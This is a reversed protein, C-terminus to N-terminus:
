EQSAPASEDNPESMQRRERIRNRLRDAFRAQAAPTRDVGTAIDEGSLDRLALAAIDAVRRGTVGPSDFEVPTTTTSAVYGAVAAIRRETSLEGEFSAEDGLARVLALVPDSVDDKLHTAHSMGVATINESLSEAAQARVEPRPHKLLVWALASQASPTAVRGLGSVAAAAARPDESRAIAVLSEEARPDKLFALTLASSERVDRDPDRVLRELEGLSRDVPLQALVAVALSRVNPQDARALRGVAGAADEGVAALSSAYFALQEDTLDGEHMIRYAWWHARIRNRQFLILAFLGVLVIISAPFM